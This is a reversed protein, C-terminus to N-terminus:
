FLYKSCSTVQSFFMVSGIKSCAIRERDITAKFSTLFRLLYFSVNYSACRPIGDLVHLSIHGHIGARIVRLVSFFECVEESDINIKGPLISVAHGEFICLM